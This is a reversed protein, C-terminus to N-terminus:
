GPHRGVTSSLKKVDILFSLVRCHLLHQHQHALDARILDLVLSGERQVSARLRSTQKGEISFPPYHIDPGVQPVPINMEKKRQQNKQKQRRRSIKFQQLQYIVLETEVPLCVQPPLLSLFTLKLTTTAMNITDYMVQTAQQSLIIRLECLNDHKPTFPESPSKVVAVIKFSIYFDTYYKKAM